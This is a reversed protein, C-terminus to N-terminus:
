RAINRVLSLAPGADAGLQIEQEYGTGLERAWVFADNPRAIEIEIDWGNRHWEMQLGGNSLPMISPIPIQESRFRSLFRAAFLATSLNVPRGTYGDWGSELVLLDGLRATVEKIWPDIPVDDHTRPAIRRTVRQSQFVIAGSQDFPVPRSWPDPSTFSPDAYALAASM